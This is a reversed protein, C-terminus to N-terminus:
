EELGCPSPISLRLCPVSAESELTGEVIRLEVAITRLECLFKSLMLILFLPLPVLLPSHYKQMLCIHESQKIAVWMM